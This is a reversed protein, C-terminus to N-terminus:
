SLMCKEPVKDVRTGIAVVVAPPSIFNDIKTSLSKNHKQYETDM